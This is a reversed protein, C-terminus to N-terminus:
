RKNRGSSRCRAEEWSNPADRISVIVANGQKQKENNELKFDLLSRHFTTCVCRMKQFSSTYTRDLLYSKTATNRPSWSIVFLVSTGVVMPDTLLMTKCGCNSGLVTSLLRIILRWLEKFWVYISSQSLQYCIGPIFGATTNWQFMFRNTSKIYPDKITTYTYKKNWM